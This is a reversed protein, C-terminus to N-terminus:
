EAPREENTESEGSHLTCIDETDRENKINSDKYIDLLSDFGNNLNEAAHKFSETKFDELDKVYRGVNSDDIIFYSMLTELSVYIPVGPYARVLEGENNEFYEELEFCETYTGDPLM